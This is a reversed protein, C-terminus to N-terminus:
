TSGMVRHGVEGWFILTRCKKGYLIEFTPRDINAHYSNNYSFEALPLYSNCSGGFDLVCACFMDELTQIM